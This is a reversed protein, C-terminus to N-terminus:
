RLHGDDKMKQKTKKLFEAFMPDNEYFEAEYKNLNKYFENIDRESFSKKKFESKPSVKDVYTTPLNCTKLISVVTKRLSKDRLQINVSKLVKISQTENSTQNPRLFFKLTLPKM